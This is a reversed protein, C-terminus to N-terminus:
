ALVIIVTIQQSVGLAVTDGGVPYVPHTVNGQGLFFSDGARLEGTIRQGFMGVAQELHVGAIRHIYLEAKVPIQGINDHVTEASVGHKDWVAAIMEYESDTNGYRGHKQAPQHAEAAFGLDEVGLRHDILIDVKALFCQRLVSVTGIYLFDAAM